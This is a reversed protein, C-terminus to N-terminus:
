SLVRATGRMVYGGAKSVIFEKIEAPSLLGAEKFSAEVAKIFAHRAKKASEDDKRSPSLLDNLKQKPVVQGNARAVELAFNFAQTGARLETLQTSHYWADGKGPDLVLDASSWLHAPVANQWGLQLIIKELVEEFPGHPLRCAVGVGPAIPNHGCEPYLVVARVPARAEREVLAAVTDAPHRLCLFVAVSANAHFTRQGLCWLGNGIERCVGQVGIKQQIEQALLTPELEFGEVDSSTLLRPAVSMDASTGILMGSETQVVEMALATTHSPHIVEALPVPRLVNRRLMEDFSKGIRRRWQAEKLRWPFLSWFNQSTGDDNFSGRIGVSDLFREILSEHGSAKIDIINPVKLAVQGPRGGYAFAISLRAEVIEGEQLRAELDDLIKFCDRGGVWVRDREGRRWLLEVVSIRRIGHPLRDDSFLEARHQQLPKLSCISEGSFFQEDGALCSGLVARYGHIMQGYRTSIGIRGTKPDFRLLDTAAPRYQLTVVSRDKVELVRKIDDGRVIQCYWQENVFHVQTTVVDNKNHERCWREVAEKLKVGDFRREKPVAAGVYERYKRPSEESRLSFQAVQLLERIAKEEIGKLILQAVFERPPVDAAVVVLAVNQESAIQQIHARGDDTGLEQLLELVSFFAPAVDGSLLSSILQQHTLDKGAFRAAEGHADLLSRWTRLGVEMFMAADQLPASLM